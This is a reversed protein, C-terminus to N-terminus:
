KSPWEAGKLVSLPDVGSNLLPAMEEAWLKALDHDYLYYQNRGLEALASLIYSGNDWKLTKALQYNELRFEPVCRTIDLLSSNHDLEQGRYTLQCGSVESVQDNVFHISIPTQPDGYDRRWSWVELGEKPTDIETPATVLLGQIHSKRNRLQIGFISLEKM